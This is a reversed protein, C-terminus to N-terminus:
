ATLRWKESVYCVKGTRAKHKGRTLELLDKPDLWQLSGGACHQVCSPEIGSETREYCLDCKWAIKEGPIMRIAGFPCATVCLGCGTCKEKDILVIGDKEKSIAEVPCVLACVPENCHVCSTFVFDTYIEKEVRRPEVTIVKTWQQGM